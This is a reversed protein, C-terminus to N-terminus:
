RMKKLKSLFDQTPPQSFLFLSTVMEKIQDDTEALRFMNTLNLGENEYFFEVMSAKMKFNRIIKKISPNFKYRKLSNNSITDSELAMMATEGAVKGSVISAHIGEGSIPSVFGAADGIIMINDKFLSKERVGLAPLSYSGKWVEKYDKKPFFKKLFPDKVFENYITNVNYKLNAELWTGCGINFRNEDLPFIWGYGKYKRFFLSITEKDLLNPGELIACKCLGLENIKWKKRLGSKLALKSSMGDAIVIIKGLYERTGDPSRTKIGIKKNNKSIFDFSLNKDFLEAGADVAINRIFDDFILRDMCLSPERIDKWSYKLKTYNGSYMEIGNIPLLNLKRLQPYYNLVKSSVAGGCPKRWKTDKEILAVKHGKKALIEACKSGAPGAGSIIM